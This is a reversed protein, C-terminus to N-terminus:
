SLSSKKQWRELIAQEYEDIMGDSKMFEMMQNRFNEMFKSTEISGKIAEM